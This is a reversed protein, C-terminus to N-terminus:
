LLSVECKGLLTDQKEAISEIRALQYKADLERGAWFGEQYGLAYEKGRAYAKDFREYIEMAQSARSLCDELEIQTKIWNLQESMERISKMGDGPEFAKVIM